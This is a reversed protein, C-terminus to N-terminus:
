GKIIKLEEETLFENEPITYISQYKHYDERINILEQEDEIEVEPGTKQTGNFTRITEKYVKHTEKSVDFKYYSALKSQKYDVVDWLHTFMKVTEIPGQIEIANYINGRVIINFTVNILNIDTDEFETNIEFEPDSILIQTETPNRFIPFEHIELNLTPNFKVLIEETIQTAINLGRAQLLLTFHYDYSVSNYAVDLIPFTNTPDMIRKSLKQFKNTQRDTAKTLGDFNLVLRPLFNYNSNNLFNEDMDELVLAKEYNGFSIPVTHEKEKNESDTVWYKVNNFANLLALTYNRTTGFYKREKYHGETGTQISM